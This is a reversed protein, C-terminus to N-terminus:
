GAMTSWTSDFECRIAGPRIESDNCGTGGCATVDLSGIRILSFIDSTNCIRATICGAVPAAPSRLLRDLVALMLSTWLDSPFRIINCCCCCCPSWCEGGEAHISIIGTSAEPSGSFSRYIYLLMSTFCNSLKRGKKWPVLFWLRKSQSAEFAHLTSPDWTARKRIRVGINSQHTPRHSWLALMTFNLVWQVVDEFRLLQEVSLLSCLQSSKHIWDLFGCCASKIAM